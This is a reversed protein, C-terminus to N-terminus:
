ESKGSGRYGTEGSLSGGDRTFPHFVTKGVSVLVAAVDGAVRQPAYIVLKRCLFARQQHALVVVNRRFAGVDDYGWTGVSAARFLRERKRAPQSGSAPSCPHYAAAAAKSGPKRGQRLQPFPEREAVQRSRPLDAAATGCCDCAGHHGDRRTGNRNRSAAECGTAHANTFIPLFVYFFKFFM